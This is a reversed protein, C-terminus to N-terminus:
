NTITLRLTNPNYSTRYERLPYNSTGEMRAGDLLSFMSDSCDAGVLVPNDESINLTCQHPNVPCARDYARFEDMSVRYVFIGRYGGSTERPFQASMGPGDLNYNTINFNFDVRVYPVPHDDEKSCSFFVLLSFCIMLYKSIRYM